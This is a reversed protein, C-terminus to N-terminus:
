QKRALMFLSGGFPFSFGLKLLFIEAKMILDLMKNLVPHVKLEDNLDYNKKQFTIRQLAMLPLLLTVFSTSYEVTFGASIIKKSLESYTYRREHHAYVDSASWLWPHQPVTLLLYGGSNLARYFNTLVSIDTDIHEIVDFSGICDYVHSDNMMKADLQRFSCKPVRQRAFALGEEFYESAELKLFPHEKAIGQIVFGTGCGVELFNAIGSIKTRLVWLIIKNRAIFWWHKAEVFALSAFADQPFGIRERKPAM